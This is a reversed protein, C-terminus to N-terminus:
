VKINRSLVVSLCINIESFLNNETFCFSEATRSPVFRIRFHQIGTTRVSAVFRYFGHPRFGVRFVFIWTPVFRVRVSRLWGAHLWAVVHYKWHTFGHISYSGGFGSSSRLSSASGVTIFDLVPLSSEFENRKKQM